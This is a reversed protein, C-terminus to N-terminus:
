IEQSIVMRGRGVDRITVGPSADESNNQLSARLNNLAQWRWRWVLPMNEEIEWPPAGWQEAM